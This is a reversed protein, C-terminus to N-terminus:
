DLLYDLIQISILNPSKMDWFSYEFDATCLTGDSETGWDAAAKKEEDSDSLPYPFCFYERIRQSNKKPRFHFASKIFPHYSVIWRRGKFWCTDDFDTNNFDRFIEKVMLQFVGVRLNLKFQRHRLSRILFFGSLIIPLITCMRYFLFKMLNKM